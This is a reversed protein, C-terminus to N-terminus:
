PEYFVTENDRFPSSADFGEFALQQNLTHASRDGREEVEGIVTEGFVSEYGYDPEHGNVTPPEPYESSNDAFIPDTFPNQELENLRERQRKRHKKGM